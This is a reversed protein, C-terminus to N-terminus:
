ASTSRSNAATPMSVEFFAAAEWPGFKRIPSSIPSSRLISTASGLRCCCRSRSASWRTGRIASCACLRPTSTGSRSHLTKRRIRDQEIRGLIKPLGTRDSAAAGTQAFSPRIKDNRLESLFHLLSADALALTAHVDDGNKKSARRALYEVHELDEIQLAGRETLIALLSESKRETWLTCADVFQQDDILGARLATLGLLLNRDLDTQTM